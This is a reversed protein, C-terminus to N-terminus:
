INVLLNVNEMPKSLGFREAFWTVSSYASHRKAAESLDWLSRISKAGVQEQRNWVSRPVGHPCHQALRAGLLVQALTSTVGLIGLQCDTNRSTAYLCLVRQWRMRSGPQLTEPHLDCKSSGVKWNRSYATQRVKVQEPLPRAWMSDGLCTNPLLDAWWSPAGSKWHTLTPDRPSSTSSAGVAEVAWSPALVLPFQPHPNPPTACM